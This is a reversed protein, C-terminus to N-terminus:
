AAKRLERQHQQSPAPRHLPQHASQDMLNTVIKLVMWVIPISFLMSALFTKDPILMPVRGERLEKPARPRKCRTGNSYSASDNSNQASEAPLMHQSMRKGLTWHIPCQVIITSMLRQGAPSPCIDFTSLRRSSIWSCNLPRRWTELISDYVVM